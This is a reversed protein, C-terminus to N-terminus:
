CKVWSHPITFFLPFEKSFMRFDPTVDLPTPKWLLLITKKGSCMLWVLGNSASSSPPEECKNCLSIELFQESTSKQGRVHFCHTKKRLFQKKIQELKGWEASISACLFHIRPFTVSCFKFQPKCFQSEVRWLDGKKRCWKLLLVRLDANNGRCNHTPRMRTSMVIYPSRWATRTAVGDRDEVVEQAEELSLCAIRLSRTLVLAVVALLSLTLVKRSRRLEHKTKKLNKRKRWTSCTITLGTPAVSESSSSTQLRHTVRARGYQLSTFRLQAFLFSFFGTWRQFITDFGAVQLNVGKIRRQLTAHSGSLCEM